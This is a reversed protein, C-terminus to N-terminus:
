GEGKVGAGLTSGTEKARADASVRDLECTQWQRLRSVVAVSLYKNHTANKGREWLKLRSLQPTERTKPIQKAPKVEPGGLRQVNGQVSRGDFLAGREIALSQHHIDGSYARM